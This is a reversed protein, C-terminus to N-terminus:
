KAKLYEYIDKLESLYIRVGMNDGDSNQTWAWIIQDDKIASSEFPAEEFQISMKKHGDKRRDQVDELYYHKYAM